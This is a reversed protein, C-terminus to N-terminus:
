DYDLRSPHVRGYYLVRQQRADTDSTTISESVSDPTRDRSDIYLKKIPLM